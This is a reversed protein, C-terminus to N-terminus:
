ITALAALVAARTAGDAHVLDLRHAIRNTAEEMGHAEVMKRLWVIDISTLVPTTRAPRYWKRM